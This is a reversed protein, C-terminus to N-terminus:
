DNEYIKSSNILFLSNKKILLHYINFNFEKKTSSTIFQIKTYLVTHLYTPLSNVHRASIGKKELFFYMNKRCFILNFYIAKCKKFWRKCMLLSGNCKTKNTKYSYYKLIHYYFILKLYEIYNFVQQPESCVWVIFFLDSLRMSHRKLKM